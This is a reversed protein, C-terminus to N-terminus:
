SAESSGAWILLSGELSAAPARRQVICASLSLVHADPTTQIDLTFPLPPSNCSLTPSLQPGLLWPLNESATIRLVGPFRGLGRSDGCEPGTVLTANSQQTLTRTPNSDEESMGAM